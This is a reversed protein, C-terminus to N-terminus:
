LIQSFTSPGRLPSLVTLAMGGVRKTHLRTPPRDTYRCLVYSGSPFVTATGASTGNEADANLLAQVATDLVKDQVSILDSIYTSRSQTDVSLHPTLIGRNSDLKNRFLLHAPCVGTRRNISTNIIHQVFPISKAYGELTQKDFVLGRLHRNVEKNVRGVIINDQKSYALTLNHPTGCLDLFEKIMDNAFHSERDSKIMNPSGFRGFHALLCDAASKADADADADACWFLETWRTFTDIIVLIYGKDPFPGVYDVNLTDFIAYNSTAFHSANIKPGKSSLKQCCPCNQIFTRVRQKMNKWVQQLSFLRTLTRDVGNHGVISNHCMHIYELQDGTALEIVTLASVTFSSSSTPILELEETRIPLAIETLNPCLRSLADVLVNSTGPVFVVTFHLEQMAIFWRAVM